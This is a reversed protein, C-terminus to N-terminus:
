DRGSARANEPDGLPPLARDLSEMSAAFLLGPSPGNPESDLPLYLAGQGATELARAWGGPPADLGVYFSRRQGPELGLRTKHADFARRVIGLAICGVSFRANIEVLPRLRERARDHPDLFTFGDIGLPGRYGAQQAAEVAALSNERLAEDPARGSDVRGRSDICGRHGRCLGAASVIQELSGLLRTEDADGIFWQVCFDGRRELWPEMVAGGRAAMRRAARKLADSDTRPWSDADYGVRGRGNFGYRPKLVFSRRAWAPWQGLRQGIAHHARAPEELLDPDLVDVCDALCAPLTGHQRALQQAFGKDHLLAVSLPAAGGYHLGSKQARGQAAPTSLWPVLGGENELGAFVPRDPPPGLETPWPAPDAAEIETASAAFLLRWLRRVNRPAAERVFATPVAGEEAGLNPWLRAGPSLSPRTM